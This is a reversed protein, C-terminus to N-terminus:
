YVFQSDASGFAQAPPGATTVVLTATITSGSPLASARLSIQAPDPPRWAETCANDSAPDGALGTASVGRVEFSLSSGILDAAPITVSTQDGAAQVVPPQGVFGTGCGTGSVLWTTAPVYCDAARCPVWSVVWGGNGDAATTVATPPDPGTDPTTFALAASPTSQRGIYATVTVRYATAPRLGSFDYQLQGTEQRAPQSPQPGHLAEVQVLWSDPECDQEDLLPYTWTVLVAHVSPIASTVDPSRPTQTSNACTVQQSVQPTAVPQPAPPLAPPSQNGGPAPVPPRPGPTAAPGTADVTTAASKDFTVPTHSGDTFVVVGLLSDPNDFIVRPGAVVIEAAAFGAHESPSALPYTAEGPVPGVALTALDISWLAPQGPGSSSMTYLHGGSAVPPVLSAVQGLRPLARPTIERADATVGFLAWGAPLRGLFWGRAQRGPERELTVPLLSTAPRTGPVAVATVASSADGPGIVDVRGPSAAAVAGGGLAELAVPTGLPVLPGRRRGVLGSASAPNPRLEVVQQGAPGEVLVFLDSGAAVAAGPQDPVAGPLTAFGRAAVTGTGNRKAVAERVTDAGVLSVTSTPGHRIIFASAGDAVATAGTTGDLTGLGVGGGSPKLVFNDQGVINFSGTIRNLLLTGARLHVAEVDAYSTAGVQSFVDRLRVTVNGTALDLVVLPRDDDLVVTGGFVQPRVAPTAPGAIASWTFGGVVAVLLAVGGLASGASRAASARDSTSRAGRRTTVPQIVAMSDRRDAAGDIDGAQVAPEAASM